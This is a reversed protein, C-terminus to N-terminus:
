FLSDSLRESFYSFFKLDSSFSIFIVVYKKILFTECVAYKRQSRSKKKKVVTLFLIIDVCFCFISLENKDM